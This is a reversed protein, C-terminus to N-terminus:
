GDIAYGFITRGVIQVVGVIMLAFIAFAALLNLFEELKGYYHDVRGILSPDVTAAGAPAGHQM